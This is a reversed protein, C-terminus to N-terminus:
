ERIKTLQRQIYIQRNILEYYKIKDMTKPHRLLERNYEFEKELGNKLPTSNENLGMDMILQFVGQKEEM